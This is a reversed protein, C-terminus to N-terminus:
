VTDKLSLSIATWQSLELLNLLNCCCQTLATCSAFMNSVKVWHSLGGPKIRIRLHNLEALEVMIPVM